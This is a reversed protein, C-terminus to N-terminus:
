STRPETWVPVNTGAAGTPWVPEQGEVPILYRGLPDPDPVGVVVPEPDVGVPPDKEPM